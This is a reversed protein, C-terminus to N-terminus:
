TKHASNFVQGHRIDHEVLDAGLLEEAPDMRIPVICDIIWLIFMTSFVGWTTLCLCALAQVGM